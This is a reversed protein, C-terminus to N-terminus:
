CAWRRASSPRGRSTSPARVLDAPRAPRRMRIGAAIMLLAFATMLAAASVLHTLKAGLFAGALGTASFVAAARLEIGQRRAQMWSGLAATVGVIVLSM